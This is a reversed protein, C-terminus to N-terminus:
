PAVLGATGRTRFCRSRSDTAATAIRRTPRSATRPSSMRGATATSIASRSRSPGSEQTTTGGRRSAATGRNLLVSVTFSTATVLDPRGDGNMDAIALSDGDSKYDDRAGFTGDGTNLFVSVHPLNAVILDPKGDGNVESIAVSSAYSDQPLQYDGRQAFSGDDQNILVSITGNATVLDPRGDGNLDGSAVDVPKQGTGFDHKAGFRGGGENLLISVSNGGANAVALDPKRDGNFDASVVAAPNRGARYARRTKFRGRGNNLLVSVTGSENAVALDRKRDGSLDAVAVSSPHRGARYNHPRSLSVALHSAGTTAGFSMAPAAAAVAFSICALRVGHHHVLSPRM